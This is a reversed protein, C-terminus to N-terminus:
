KISLLTQLMEDGVSVMRAAAQYARQYMILNTLEDDLSVGSVSDKLQKFQDVLGQYFTQSNEAQEADAGIQSVLERYADAFTLGGPGVAQGGLDALALSNNNDGPPHAGSVPDIRGAAILDTNAALADNVSITYAQDGKFFTNLGLAMLVNSTDRSFGFSHNAAANLQLHNEGSGPPVEAVTATVDGGTAATIAAALTNLDDGAGIAINYVTSAGAGDEVHLNFSGAAIRDGFSLSPNNILPLALDPNTIYNSSGTGTFLELGVGQSHQLNVAAILEKALDDLDAQYQPIFTDRVQIIGALQGSNVAATVDKTLPPTGPGQWEIKIAGSSSDAQLSWAVGGEVLSTGDALAVNITGNGTTYYHVGILESLRNLELQRQDRLDNAQHMNSETELIQENLNAINALHDNIEAM